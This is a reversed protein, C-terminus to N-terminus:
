GVQQDITKARYVDHTGRRVAGAVNRYQVVTMVAAYFALIEEHVM